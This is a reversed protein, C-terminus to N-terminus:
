NSINNYSDSVYKYDELFMPEVTELEWIINLIRLSNAYQQIIKM